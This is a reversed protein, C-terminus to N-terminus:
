PRAGVARGSRSARLGAPRRPAAPLCAPAIAREDDAHQGPGACASRRGSRWPTGSSRRSLRCSGDPATGMGWSAGTPQEAAQDGLDGGGALAGVGAVGAAAQARLGWRDALPDDQSLPGGTSGSPRGPQARGANSTPLADHLSLTYIETTATDNFFFFFFFFVFFHICALIM